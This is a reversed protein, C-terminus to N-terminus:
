HFPRLIQIPSPPIVAIVVWLSSIEKAQPTRMPVGPNGCTAEFFLFSKFGLFQQPMWDWHRLKSSVCSSIPIKAYFKCLNENVRRVLTYHHVLPHLLKSSCRQCLSVRSWGMTPDTNTQPLMQSSSIM